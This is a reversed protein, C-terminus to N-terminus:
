TYFEKQDRLKQDHNQDNVKTINADNVTSADDYVDFSTGKIIYCVVKGNMFNNVSLIHYRRFYVYKYGQYSTWNDAVEDVCDCSPYSVLIMTFSNM